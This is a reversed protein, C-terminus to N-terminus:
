YNTYDGNNKTPEDYAVTVLFKGVTSVAGVVKIGLYIPQGTNTRKKGVLDGVVGTSTIDTLALLDVGSESTGLTVEASTAATTVSEVTVYADVITCEPPLNGVLYNTTGAALTYDAYDYFDQDVEVTFLSRTKKQASEGYRTMNTNAM